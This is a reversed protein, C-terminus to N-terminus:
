KAHMPTDLIRKKPYSFNMAGLVTLTLVVPAGSYYGVKRIAGSYTTFFGAPSNFDLKTDFSGVYTNTLLEIKEEALAHEFTQVIAEATYRSNADHKLCGDIVQAAVKPIGPYLV